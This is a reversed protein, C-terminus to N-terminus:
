AKKARTETTTTIKPVTKFIDQAAERIKKLSIEM